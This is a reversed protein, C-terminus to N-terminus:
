NPVHLHWLGQAGCQQHVVEVHQTRQTLGRSSPEADGHTHPHGPNDEHGVKDVSGAFIYSCVSVSM